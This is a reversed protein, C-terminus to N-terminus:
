RVVVGLRATTISPELVPMHALADRCQDRLLPSRDRGRGRKIRTRRRGQGRCLFSPAEELVFRKGAVPARALGTVATLRTRDRRLIRLESELLVRVIWQEHVVAAVIVIAVPESVAHVDRAHEVARRDQHANLQM